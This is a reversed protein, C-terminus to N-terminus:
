HHYLPLKMKNGLDEPSMQNHLLGLKGKIVYYKIDQVNSFPVSLICINSAFFFHYYASPLYTYLVKLSGSSSLLEHRRFTNFQYYYMRKPSLLLTKERVFIGPKVCLNIQLTTECYSWLVANKQKLEYARQSKISPSSIVM